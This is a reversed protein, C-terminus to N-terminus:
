VLEEKMEEHFATHCKECWNQGEYQEEMEKGCEVCIIM